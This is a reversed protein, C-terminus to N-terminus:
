PCTLPFSFLRPLPKPCLFSLFKRKVAGKYALHPIGLRYLKILFDSREESSLFKASFIVSYYFNVPLVSPLFFPEYFFSFYNKERRFFPLQCFLQFLFQLFLQVLTFNLRDRRYNIQRYCTNFNLKNGVSM